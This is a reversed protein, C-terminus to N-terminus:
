THCHTVACCAFAAHRKETRRRRRGKRKRSGPKNGAIHTYTHTDTSGPKNGAIVAHECVRARVLHSARLIFAGCQSLSPSKATRCLFGAFACCKRM